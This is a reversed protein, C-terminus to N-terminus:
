SEDDSSTDGERRHIVLILGGNSESDGDDDSSSDRDEPPVVPVNEQIPAPLPAEAAPLASKEKKEKFPHVTLFIILAVAGLAAMCILVPIGIQPVFALLFGVFTIAAIAAWIMGSKSPPRNWHDHNYECSPGHISCPPTSM